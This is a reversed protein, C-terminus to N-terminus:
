SEKDKIGQRISHLVRWAACAIPEFGDAKPETVVRRLQEGYIRMAAEAIDYARRARDKDIRHALNSEVIIFTSIEFPSFSFKPKANVAAKAATDAANCDSCIPTPEFRVFSDCLARYAPNSWPKGLPLVHIKEAALDGFHDHHNHTACLLDGNKDLRAIERKARFCCPCAWEPKTAFFGSISGIGIAGRERMLAILLRANAEAYADDLM